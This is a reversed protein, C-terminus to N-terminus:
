ALEVWVPYHDSAMTENDVFAAKLRSVLGGSVFCYDLHKRVAGDPSIWSYGDAPRKKLHAEADIPRDARAVRGYFADDQGVMAIYEPGEPEMNFDGMLLYDAPLAPDPVAFESAGTLAGGEDVFGNARAKLFRIQAMREDPSVHDLHVSYVRVAGGPADIVAELAGRQLNLKDFTRARPLLLNRVAVVPFRSLVMNGFQFRRARLRGEVMAHDVLVDSAAGFASFYAPFLSSFTEVLDAHGNRIFGRTVEQLAIVDAGDVARAIREPDFRGDQGIGYQINYSVFKM